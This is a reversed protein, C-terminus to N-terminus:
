EDLVNETDKKNKDTYLMHRVSKLLKKVTSACGKLILSTKGLLVTIKKEFSCCFRAVAISLKNMIGSVFSFIFCLVFFVPKGVTFRYLMFGVAASFLIYGRIEGNTVSVLFIFVAVASIIWFLIDGIFVAFFSDAGAKRTARIIDYFLCLVAGLLLSYLFATIQGGM